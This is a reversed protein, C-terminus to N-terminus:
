KCVIELDSENHLGREGDTWQVWWGRFVGANHKVIIGVNKCWTAKVKVLDGVQM